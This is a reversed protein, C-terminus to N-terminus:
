QLVLLSLLASMRCLWTLFSILTMVVVILCLLVLFYSHSRFIILHRISIRIDAVFSTSRSSWNEVWLTLLIVNLIHTSALLYIRETITLIIQFLEKDVIGDLTALLAKILFTPWGSLFYKSWVPSKLTSKVEDNEQNKHYSIWSNM